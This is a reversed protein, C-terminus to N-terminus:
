IPPTVMRIAVNSNSYDILKSDPNQILSATLTSMLSHKLKSDILAVTLTLMFPQKLQLQLRSVPYDMLAVSFTLLVPMTFNCM